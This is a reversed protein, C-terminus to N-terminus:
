GHHIADLAYQVAQEPAMAQGATWAGAFTAEGMADRLAAIQEECEAQTSDSLDLGAAEVLAEAAGLLRAAPEERGSCRLAAAIGRL